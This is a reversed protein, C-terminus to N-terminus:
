PVCMRTLTVFRTLTTSEISMFMLLRQPKKPVLQMMTRMCKVIEDSMSIFGANKTSTSKM